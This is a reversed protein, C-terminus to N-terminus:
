PSVAKAAARDLREIDALILAGAKVLDRRRDTPKWCTAPWPWLNRLVENNQISFHGSVSHRREDSLSAVIAYSAGAKALEGDVHFDDREPSFGEENWQRDRENMVDILAKSLDTPDIWGAEIAADYPSDDPGDTGWVEGVM